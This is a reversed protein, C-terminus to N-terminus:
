PSLIGCKKFLELWSRLQSLPLDVLSPRGVDEVFVWTLNSGSIKKDGGFAKGVVDLSLGTASIPLGLQGLVKRARDPLEASTVGEAVGLELAAVTGIAVAEGHLLTGYGAAAEIAHGLSHGFNLVKRWGTELRDAEVVGAKFVCCRRVLDAIFQPDRELARHPDRELMRLLEEDGLLASKVVEGLGARLERDPLTDLYALDIWVLTPQHFAGLLNKGSRHNVGVKGGVSSDVMALLTTPVQVFPVGRLLLSAVLGAMDGLVGGGLAVVPAGRQWGRDLLRDAADVVHTISKKDEGAPLVERELRRGTQQLVAALQEGHLPGVNWDTLMAIPGQGIASVREALAEGLGSGIVIDYGGGPVEVPITAILGPPMASHVGVADRDSAELLNLIMTAVDGPPADADIRVEAEAYHSQRDAFLAALAAPDGWLPRGEGREGIRRQLEALPVDLQVWLPEGSLLARSAPDILTGGGLAVVRDPRCIAQRLLRAEMARFAAEGPGSFIAPVSMGFAAEIESDLDVFTRKLLRALREAVTSKGAGM